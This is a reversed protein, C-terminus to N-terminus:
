ERLGTIWQRLAAAADEAAKHGNLRARRGVDECNCDLVGIRDPKVAGLVNEVMTLGAHGHHDIRRLAGISEIRILRGCRFCGL